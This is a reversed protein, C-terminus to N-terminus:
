TNSSPTKARSSAACSTRRNSKSNTGSSKMRVSSAATRISNGRRHGRRAGTSEIIEGMRACSVFPWRVSASVMVFALVTGTTTWTRTTLQDAFFRHPAARRCARATPSAAPAAFRPWCDAFREADRQPAFRIGGLLQRIADDELFHRLCRRLIKVPKRTASASSCGRTRRAQAHCPLHLAPRPKASAEWHGSRVRLSWYRCRVNAFLRNRPATVRENIGHAAHCELYTSGPLRILQVRVGGASAVLCPRNGDVTVTVL